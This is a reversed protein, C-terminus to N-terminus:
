EKFSPKGNESRWKKIFDLVG